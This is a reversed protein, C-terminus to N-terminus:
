TLKRAVEQGMAKLLAREITSDQAAAAALASKDWARLRVMGVTRVNASATAGSLSSMEGLMRYKGLRIFRDDTVEVEVDGDLILYLELVEAGKAILQHDGLRREEGCHWLTNFAVRDLDPFLLTRIADAEDDLDVGRRAALLRWIHWSHLALVPINWWFVSWVGAIPGYIMFLVTAAWLVVRLRLMDKFAASAAYIAYAANLLVWSLSM